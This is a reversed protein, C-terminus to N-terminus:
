PDYSNQQPYLSSYWLALCYPALSPSYQSLHNFLFWLSTQWLVRKHPTLPVTIFLTLLFLQRSWSPPHWAHSMWKLKTESKWLPNQRYKADKYIKYIREREKQPLFHLLSTEHFSRNGRELIRYKGSRMNEQRIPQDCWKPPARKGYSKCFIDM